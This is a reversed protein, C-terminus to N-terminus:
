RGNPFLRHSESAYHEQLYEASKRYAEAEAELREVEAVLEKAKERALDAREQNQRALIQYLGVRENVERLYAAGLVQLDVDTKDM